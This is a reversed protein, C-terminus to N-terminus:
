LLLLFKWWYYHDNLLKEKSCFPRQYHKGGNEQKLYRICLVAEKMWTKVVAETGDTSGDDVILWVFDKDEQGCLGKYLASIKEIRNYVPTFITLTQM